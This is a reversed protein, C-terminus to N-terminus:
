MNWVTGRGMMLLEFSSRVAVTLSNSSTQMHQEFLVCLGTGVWERLRYFSLLYKISHICNQAGSSPRLFRRFCTSCKYYYIGNHLTADQQNYKFVVCKQWVVYNLITTRTTVAAAILIQQKITYTAINTESVHQSNWIVKATTNSQLDLRWICFDSYKANWFPRSTKKKNYRKGKKNWKPFYFFSYCLLPAFCQLMLYQTPLSFLTTSTM